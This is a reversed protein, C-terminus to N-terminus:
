KANLLSRQTVVAHVSVHLNSETMNKQLKEKQPSLEM